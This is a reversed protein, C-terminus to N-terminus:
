CFLSEPMSEKVWRSLNWHESTGILGDHPVADIRTVEMTLITKSISGIGFSWTQVHNLLLVGHIGDDPDDILVWALNPTKVCHKTEM